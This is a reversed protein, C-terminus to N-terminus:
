DGGIPSTTDNGNNGNGHIHSDLSIGNGSVDGGASIKGTVELDGLIKVPGGNGNVIIGSQSLYVSRGLNDYIISEGASLAQPRYRRDNSAFAVGKTKDGSLFGVVYDCGALPASAFGYLQMDPVNDRIEPGSRATGLFKIQATATKGQQTALTARGVNVMSLVRHVLRGVTSNETM